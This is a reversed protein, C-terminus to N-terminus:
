RPTSALNRATISACGNAAAYTNLVSPIDNKAHGAAFLMGPVALVRTVGQEKLRDLGTRIIPTAFELYGFEVPYQPMRHKLHEALVAFEKVADKDRSGHGCLMVGLKDSM